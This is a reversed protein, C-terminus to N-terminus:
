SLPTTSRRRKSGSATGAGCRCAAPPRRRDCSLWSAMTPIPVLGLLHYYKESEKHLVTQQNASATIVAGDGVPAGTVYVSGTILYAYKKKKPDQLSRSGKILGTALDASEISFGHQILTLKVARFTQDVSADCTHSNGALAAKESFAKDYGTESSCAALAAAASALLPLLINRKM